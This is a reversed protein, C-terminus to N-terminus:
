TYNGKVSRSLDLSTYPPPADGEIKTVEDYTPPGKFETRPPPEEPEASQQGDQGNNSMLDAIVAIMLTAYGNVMQRQQAARRRQLNARRRATVGCCTGLCCIMLALVFVVFVTPYIKFRSDNPDGPTIELPPTSGPTTFRSSLGDLVVQQVRDRLFASVWGLTTGRIDYNDLKRLLKHHPVKDFAKSFDLIILDTQINSHLNQTLEHILTILQTECSRKARFGHQCDVLIQFTDLHDLINSVVIHELLKCCICTLSVPRYNSALCKDGKKFIPIVNARQGRELSKNFIYTLHPALQTSYQKLIRAPIQDPGTAKSTDLNNLLKETGKTTIHINQMSPYNESLTPLEENINEPTFISHCQRNLIEAKQKTDDVLLGESRLPAVRTNDKKM